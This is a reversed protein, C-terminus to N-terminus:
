VLPTHERVSEVMDDIRQRDRIMQFYKLAEVIADEKEKPCKPQRAEDPKPKNYNEREIIGYKAKVQAIYLNSVKMGDNHEAVYKKIEEYTAKSEVATLDMEDMDLTVSVHHKAEHLKSLLCVTEVHETHPFMDFPRIRKVEYGNRTLYELDRKLTVPNCSVYVVRQPSLTCLAHLFAEDSGARPPDMLVVDVQERQEALQCMFEGADKQYFSIKKVNNQRANIVADHVADRNFEVGIIEGAKDSAIIGITGTGCYADLVHEKGTLGAYEVATRYLSETQVPNVQYFSRPSIRFHKGCLVDEIYGRGYLVHDRDGLVMSDGRNNINQVITTIEPHKERLAKVFNNRSPFVPSVTVLVVMIEGTAHGTRVLVHRLLGYGTDEDYVKIKFSRLMQRITVVIADARQDELLCSDVNVVRHSKEEYVGSLINGKRDRSFAASVKNRYHYPSSMGKIKEIKGYSGLLKEVNKQKKKLQLEYPLDSHQCGGCKKALPCGTNKEQGASQRVPKQEQLKGQRAPQKERAEIRRKDAQQRGAAVARGGKKKSKGEDARSHM